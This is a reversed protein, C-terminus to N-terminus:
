GSDITQLMPRIPEVSPLHAADENAYPAAVANPGKMILPQSVFANRRRLQCLSCMHEISNVRLSM